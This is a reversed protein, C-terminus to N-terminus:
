ENTLLPQLNVTGNGESKECSDWYRRKAQGIDRYVYIIPYLTLRGYVLLRSTQYFLFSTTPSLGCSM